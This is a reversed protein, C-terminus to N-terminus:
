VDDDMPETRVWNTAPEEPSPEAPAPDNEPRAHEKLLDELAKREEDLLTPALDRLYRTSGSRIVARVINRAKEGKKGTKTLNRVM